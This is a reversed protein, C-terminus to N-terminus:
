NYFMGRRSFSTWIYTFVFCVTTLITDCNPCERFRYVLGSRPAVVRNLTLCNKLWMKVSSRWMEVIIACIGKSEATETIDKVDDVM